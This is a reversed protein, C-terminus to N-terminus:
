LQQRAVHVDRRKLREQVRYKLARRLALPARLDDLVEALAFVQLYM